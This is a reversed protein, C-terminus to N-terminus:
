NFLDPKERDGAVLLSHVIYALYGPITELIHEFIGTLKIACNELLGRLCLMPKLKRAFILNFVIIRSTAMKFTIGSFVASNSALKRFHM